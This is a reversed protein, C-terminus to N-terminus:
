AAVRRTFVGHKNFLHVSAEISSDVLSAVIAFLLGTREAFGVEALVAFVLDRAYAKKQPGSLTLFSEAEQVAAFVLEFAAVVQERHEKIWNLIGFLVKLLEGPSAFSSERQIRDLAAKVQPTLEMQGRLAESLYRYLRLVLSWLPKTVRALWHFFRVWLVRFTTPPAPEIDVTWLGYKNFILVLTDVASDVLIDLVIPELDDPVRPIDFRKSRLLYRIVQKLETAKIHGMGTGSGYRQEEHQVLVDLLDIWSVIAREFHTKQSVLLNLFSTLEEPRGEGMAEKLLRRLNWVTLRLREQQEKNGSGLATRFRFDPEFCCHFRHQGTSSSSGQNSTAM